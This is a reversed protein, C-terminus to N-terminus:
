GQEYVQTLLTIDLKVMKLMAEMVRKSKAADSDQLMGQSVTPVIQWTVGFRDRLRM